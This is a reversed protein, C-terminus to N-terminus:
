KMTLSNYQNYDAIVTQLFQASNLESHINLTKEIQSKTDYSLKINDPSPNKILLDLVEKIITIDNDSLLNINEFNIKYNEEVKLFITDSLKAKDSLKIVTTGAVIDGLRQTNKSFAIFSVAIGGSALYIDVLRFVWRVLYHYFRPESGDIRVVKIKMIKKGFTQGNFFTEFFLNYFMAPIYLIIILATSSEQMVGSIVGIIFLVLLFYSGMFLIDLISALIRNGVGALKNSIEVNQATNINFQEM